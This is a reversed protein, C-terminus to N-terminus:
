GHGKGKETKKSVLEFLIEIQPLIKQINSDFIQRGKVFLERIVENVVGVLVQSM